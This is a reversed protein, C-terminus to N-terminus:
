RSAELEAKTLAAGLVRNSPRLAWSTLALGLLVLPAVIEQRHGCGDATLREGAHGAAPALLPVLAGLARRNGGDLGM